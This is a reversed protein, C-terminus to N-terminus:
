YWHLQVGDDIGREKREVDESVVDKWKAGHLEQKSGLVKMTDGEREEEGIRSEGGAM